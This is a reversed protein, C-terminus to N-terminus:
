KTFKLRNLILINLHIHLRKSSVEIKHDIYNIIIFPIKIIEIM